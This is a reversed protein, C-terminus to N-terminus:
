AGGDKTEESATINKYLNKLVIPDNSLLDYFFFTGLYSRIRLNYMRNPINPLIKILTREGIVSIRKNPQKVDRKSHQFTRQARYRMQDNDDNLLDILTDFLLKLFM